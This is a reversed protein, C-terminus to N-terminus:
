SLYDISKAAKGQLHALLEPRLELWSIFGSLNSQVLSLSDDRFMSFKHVNCKTNGQNLEFITYDVATLEDFALLYCRWQLADFYELYEPARAKTKFENVVTGYLGDYRMNMVVEYGKIETKYTSKLEHIMSAYQSRIAFIPTVAEPSFVWVKGFEKEEVQYTAKYGSPGGRLDEVDLNHDPMEEVLFKEPGHELMAHYATGRSMAENPQRIGIIDNALDDGTKGYLGAMTVRYSDLLSPSISLRKM